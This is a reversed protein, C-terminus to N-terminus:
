WRCIITEATLGYCSGSSPPTPQVTGAMRLAHGRDDFVADTFLFEAVSWVDVSARSPRSRNNHFTVRNLELVSAFPDDEDVFYGLYSLAAATPADNGWFDVDDVTTDMFTDIAVAGARQGAMNDLFQSDSISLTLGGNVAGGSEVARNGAFRSGRIHAVLGALAGGNVAENDTFWADEVTLAARSYVAGGEEATGGRFHAGSVTATGTLALHRDEAGPVWQVVEPGGRGRVSFSAVGTQTLRGTHTGPCLWLVDGAEPAIEVLDPGFLGSADEWDGSAREWSALGLEGDACDQDIGDCWADVAGPYVTPDDDDCDVSRPAGDGDADEDLGSIPVAASVSCDSTDVAQAIWECRDTVGSVVAVGGEATGRWTREPGVDLVADPCAAVETREPDGLALVVAGADPLGSVSVTIEGPCAGSVTVTPM